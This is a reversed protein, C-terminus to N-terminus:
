LEDAQLTAFEELVVPSALWPWAFETAVPLRVRMVVHIQRYTASYTANANCNQIETANCAVLSGSAPDYSVTGASTKKMCRCQVANLLFDASNLTYAGINDQTAHQMTLAVKASDVLTIIKNTPDYGWQQVAVPNKQQLLRAGALVGAHVASALSLHAHVVRALDMSALTILLLLPLVILLEVTASGRTPKNLILHNVVKM